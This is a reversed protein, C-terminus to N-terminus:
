LGASVLLCVLHSQRQKSVVDKLQQALSTARAQVEEHEKLLATHKDQLELMQLAVSDESGGGGGKGFNGGQLQLLLPCDDAPRWEVPLESEIPPRERVKIFNRAEQELMRAKGDVNALTLEM